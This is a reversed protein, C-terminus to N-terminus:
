GRKGFTPDRKMRNNVANLARGEITQDMRNMFAEMRAVAEASAGRNDVNWVNGGGGGSGMQDPRNISVTEDPSARFAVLQSDTGGQGGVRFSGGTAFGDFMSLMDFGGGDTMGGGGSFISLLGGLGGGSWGGKMLDGFLGKLPGSIMEQIFLKQIDKALNFMVEGFSEAGTIGDEFAKGFADALSDTVRKLQETEEKLNNYEDVLVAIKQGAVSDIDVNAQRLQNYLEQDEISRGMQQNRFELDSLVKAVQKAHKEAEKNADSLNEAMKKYNESIDRTKTEVKDAVEFDKDSLGFIGLTNDAAASFSKGAKRMNNTSSETAANSVDRATLGDTWNVEATDDTSFFNKARIGANVLAQVGQIAAQIGTMIAGIITDFLAKFVYVYGEVVNVLAALTDGVVGLGGVILETAGTAENFGEVIEMIRIKLEGFARGVTMPMQEFKANAEDTANLIASFVDKSLVKGEIVLRRLQGTSIGFQDAIAKGVAPINEMISNFEEARVIDSSLSQGLQTLGFKLADGSAGSVIGLKQVTDTFQLMEATTAKIDQRVLSIRSFIEIGAQLNGTNKATDLLGEWAEDAEEISDTALKIRARYLLMDDAAKVIQLLGFSVAYAKIASTIGDISNKLGTNQRNLNAQAQELRRQNLEMRQVNQIAKQMATDSNITQAALKKTANETKLAQKELATLKSVAEPVSTSDAKIRLNAIDM